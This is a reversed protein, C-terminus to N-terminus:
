WVKIVQEEIKQQTTLMPPADMLRLWLLGDPLPNHKTALQPLKDHVVIDKLIKPMNLGAETFFQVTTFFRSINIETPNPIGNEDFAMDVGYIGHPVESVAKVARPAIDDVLPHSCTEGVKTVGTVGSPSLASHAWGNRKRTQGVVLEGKYWISLWTITEPTLLQAAVFDGWGNSKEIWERAEDFDNTPLAGKGGGGISMSRLWITGKSNGLTALADKLDDENHIVKNEPVTIGAAKFKQWSKYKHVCTDITEYDPVLMRVGTAEIEERFKLAMALELDHQFHIMDPKELNLVKLLAEKYEPRRAHPMHYKKHSACMVLETPDSGLGIIEDDDGGMILSNIVGNSQASGAGTIIIKAM